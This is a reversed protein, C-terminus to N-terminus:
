GRRYLADFFQRAEATVRVPETPRPPDRPPRTKWKPETVKEEQEEMDSLEGAEEEDTEGDLEGDEIRAKLREPEDERPRQRGELQDDFAKDQDFMYCALEYERKMVRNKGGYRVREGDEPRPPLPRQFVPSEHAPSLAHIGTKASLFAAILMVQAAFGDRHGPNGCRTCFSVRLIASDDGLRRPHIVDPGLCKCCTQSTLSEKMRYISLEVDERSELAELVANTYSTGKAPGSQSNSPSFKDMGDVFVVEIRVDKEPKGLITNVQQSADRLMAQASKDHQIKACAQAIPTRRAITVPIRKEPSCTANHADIAARGGLKSKQETTRGLRGPELKMFCEDRRQSGDRKAIEVLMKSRRKAERVFRGRKVGDWGGQGPTAREGPGVRPREYFALALPWTEGKDAAMVFRRPGRDRRAPADDRMEFRFLDLNRKLEEERKDSRPRPVYKSDPDEYKLDLDRGERRRRTTPGRTGNRGKRGETWRGDADLFTELTSLETAGSSVRGLRAAGDGAQARKGKEVKQGFRKARFNKYAANRTLVSEVFEVTTIPDVHDDDSELDSLDSDSIEVDRDDDKGDQGTGLPEMCAEDDESEASDALMGEDDTDGVEQDLTEISVEPDTARTTDVNVKPRAPADRQPMIKVRAPELYLIHVSDGKIQYMHPVLDRRRDPKFLLNIVEPRLHVLSERRHTRTLAKQRDRAAFMFNYVDEVTQCATTVRERVLDFQAFPGIIIPHPSPTQHSDKCALKFFRSGAVNEPLLVDPYKAELWALREARSLYRRPRDEFNEEAAKEKKKQKEKVKEVAETPRKGLKRTSEREERRARREPGRHRPRGTVKDCLRRAEAEPSHVHPVKPVADSGPFEDRTDDRPSAADEETGVPDADKELEDQRTTEVQDLADRLRELAVKTNRDLDVLMDLAPPNRNKGVEPPTVLYYLMTADWSSAEPEFRQSLADALGLVFLKFATRAGPIKSRDADDEKGEAGAKKKGKGNPKQEKGRLAADLSYGESTETNIADWSMDAGKGKGGREDEKKKRKPPRKSGGQSSRVAYDVWVLPLVVQLQELDNVLDNAADSMESTTMELLTPDSRAGKRRHRALSSEIQNKLWAPVRKPAGVSRRASGEMAAPVTGSSVYTVLETVLPGDDVLLSLISTRRPSSRSAPVALNPFFTQAATRCRDLPASAGTLLAQILPRWFQSGKTKRKLQEKLATKFPVLTPGLRRLADTGTYSEGSADQEKKAVGYALKAIVHAPSDDPSSDNRGVKVQQIAVEEVIHGITRQGFDVQLLLQPQEQVMAQLLASTNAAVKQSELCIAVGLAEHLDHTASRFEGDKIKLDSRTSVINRHVQKSRYTFTRMNPEFKSLDNNVMSMAKPTPLPPAESPPNLVRDVAIREVHSDITAELEPIQRRRCGLPARRKEEEDVDDEEEQATTSADHSTSATQEVVATSTSAVRGEPQMPHDVDEIASGQRANLPWRRKALVAHNRLRPEAGDTGTAGSIAKALQRKVKAQQLELRTEFAEEERARVEAYVTGREVLNTSKGLTADRLRRFHELTLGKVFDTQPLRALLAQFEDEAGQDTGDVRSSEFFELLEQHKQLTVIGIGKVGPSYDNGIMVLECARGEVSRSTFERCGSKFDLARFCRIRRGAKATLPEDQNNTTVTKLCRAEYTTRSLSVENFVWRASDPSTVGFVDSDETMVVTQDPDAKFALRDADDATYAIREVRSDAEIEDPTGSACVDLVSDVEGRPLVFRVGKWFSADGPLSAIDGLTAPFTYPKVDAATFREIPAADARGKGKGDHGQRCGGDVGTRESATRTEMGADDRTDAGGAEEDTKGGERRRAEEGGAAGENDLGAQEKRRTRERRKQKRAEIEQQRLGAIRERKVQKEFRRVLEPEKEQPRKNDFIITIAKVSPFTKRAEVVQSYVEREIARHLGDNFADVTPQTHQRTALEHKTVETVFSGTDVVLHQIEKKPPQEDNDNADLSGSQIREVIRGASTSVQAHGQRMM